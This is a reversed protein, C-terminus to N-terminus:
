SLTIVKITEYVPTKGIKHTFNIEIYGVKKTTKDYQCHYRWLEWNKNWPVVYVLKLINIKLRSFTKFYKM